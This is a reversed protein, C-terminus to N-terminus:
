EKSVFEDLNMIVSSVATWAALEVPDCDEPTAYEGATALKKAQDAHESFHARQQTYLDRLTQRELDDPRRGLARHMADAIRQDVSADERTLLNAAMLRASEVFQVDNMLVLAQAPTNTRERRVVCSERMPADFALLNPPPSTRKWFTYISRRYLAEGHDQKFNATNSSPYAVAKWLGPPQYPKVPPGGLQNVLLGSVALAQDRVQEADLRHRPGRALLLNDPDQELLDPRLRSTQRYAASTVILRVLHKVDWGSEIFEVALWDLLQPHTPWSGQLGFDESTKVLARGFFQQWYRNVTVRATLPHDRHVLWQALGLRDTSAGEPLNPLFSPVAREVKQKKLDYQGRDLFFAQRPEVRERYILTIPSRDNIKKQEAQLTSLQGALNKDDADIHQRYHDRAAGIQRDNRKEPPLALISTLLDDAYLRSVEQESLHRGYLRAEDVLGGKLHSEKSRRGIRLPVQTVISDSLKDIEVKVPQAKGDVYVKVGAAKSRGDYTVFVHHWHKPKLVDRQTTVKITNDPWAHILHAAIRKNSLYLDYGRHAQDDDMRALVAGTINGPTKIWAGYSFGRDREFSGRDGLEVHGTQNLAIAKGIKGDAPAADGTLTVDRPDFKGDVPVHVILGEVASDLRGEAAHRRAQEDLWATFKTEATKRHDELKSNARAIQGELEELRQRDEMSPVHLIPKHEKRNGDMPDADLNNFFAFLQYFEVQSVPDYKHDHCSACGLTMGMFVTGFTEVRDVVNRVYVEEKIVGGENTSVHCRNFTTAVLQEITPDDLLDGALQEITFRDFPMNNNFANIVWDRYPWVERYNDIHLGHTDGYRAADLWYRAMHEGYRPSALYHEVIQEYAPSKEGPAFRDYEEPTPSLGTLDLALRRVLTRRDAQPSPQLAAEELRALIFRDIPNRVRDTHEASVEPLAPREVRVFAWHPKYEAGANLWRRVLETQVASLPKNFDDPPMRQAPHSSIIRHYLTSASANGPVIAGMEVAAERVDLRLDAQRQAADPGHCAFCHNSLIPRIDRGFDPVEPLAQGMAALEIGPQASGRDVWQFLGVVALFAIALLVPLSKILTQAM